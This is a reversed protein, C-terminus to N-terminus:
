LFGALIEIGSQEEARFSFDEGFVGLGLRGVAVREEGGRDRHERDGPM